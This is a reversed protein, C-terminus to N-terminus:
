NRVSRYLPADASPLGEEVARSLAAPGAAEAIEEPVVWMTYDPGQIPTCALRGQRLSCASTEHLVQPQRRDHRLLRMDIPQLIAPYAVVDVNRFVCGLSNSCAGAREGLTRSAGFARRMPLVEAAADPGASIYCGPEGCLIPDGTKNHRRIGRNGPLMTLLVTVRPSHSPESFRREAPRDSLARDPEPPRQDALGIGARDRFQPAEHQPPYPVAQTQTDARRQRAERAKRLAEDIRDAEAEREAEMQALEKAETKRREDALRREEDLKRAAEATREAEERRRRELETKRATEATRLATEDRRRQEALRQEEDAKRVAEAAVRQAEEAALRAAEIKAADPADAEDHDAAERAKVLVDRRSEAEARARELMEIEDLLRQEDEPSPREAPVVVRTAGPPLGPGTTRAFEEAILRGIADATEARLAHTLTFIAGVATATLVASRLLSARM